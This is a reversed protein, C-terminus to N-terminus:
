ARKRAYRIQNILHPTYRRILNYDTHTVTYLDKMSVKEGDHEELYRSVRQEIEIIIKERKIKIQKNRYLEVIDSCGKNRITTASTGRAKAVAPLNITTGRNLLERCTNKINSKFIPASGQIKPETYSKFLAEVVQPHYRHMLFHDYNIWENWVRIEALDIGEDLKRVFEGLLKENVSLKINDDLEFVNRIQFYALVRQIRGRKLGMVKVKETWTLKSINRISLIEYAKIFYSREVLHNNDDLAYECGCSLCVMCYSLAKGDKKSQFIGTSVLNGKVGYQKCWPAACATDAAIEGKSKEHLSQLFGESVYSEFFDRIHLDAIYLVFFLLTMHVACKQSLTGRACQILHELCGPYRSNRILAKNYHDQRENLIYVMRTAIESPTFSRGSYEILYKWNDILWVQQKVISQDIIEKSDKVNSLYGSCYPCRNIVRIDKYLISCHCYECKNMLYKNHEACVDVGILKWHLSISNTHSICEPCYYLEERLMGELVKSKEGKDSDTFGRILNTYSSRNVDVRTLGTIECLKDINLMSSPFYDIRKLDGSHLRYNENQKVMELLRVIDRGNAEALRTLYSSLSECEVLKRRITFRKIINM